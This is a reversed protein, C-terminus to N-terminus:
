AARHYPKKHINNFRPHVMRRYDTFKMKIVENHNCANFCIYTDDMMEKDMLVNMGYLNGMPPMAGTVSDRFRPSFEEESALTVKKAGMVEKIKKLDLSYYAPLVAMMMNGDVNIMIPKAFEKGKVHTAEATKMSSFTETHTIIDYPINNQKLANIVRRGEM